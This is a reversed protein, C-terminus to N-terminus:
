PRLHHLLKSREIFHYSFLSILYIGLTLSLLFVVEVATTFRQPMFNNVGFIVVTHALYISYSMDGLTLLSNCFWHQWNVLRELWLSVMVLLLAYTNIHDQSAWNLAIFLLLSAIAAMSLFKRGVPQQAKSYLYGLLIGLSFENLKSSTCISALFWDKSWIIPMLVLIIATVAFPCRKFLVINLALMSYFFMEFNLTWGVTLLPFM